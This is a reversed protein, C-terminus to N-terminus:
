ILMRSKAIDLLRDFTMIELDPFITSARRHQETSELDVDRGVVAILKPRYARLGYRDQLMKRHREDEFYAHYERLQAAVENIAAALSVRDRKGVFIRATPLKLDLIDCWDGSRPELLFDPRLSTGNARELVIQPHVTTYNLGQLFHPNAELFRQIAHEKLGTQSLLSEFNRIEEAFISQTRSALVAPRGVLLDDKLPHELGYSAYAHYPVVEISDGAVQITFDVLMSHQHLTRSFFEFQLKLLAQELADVWTIERLPNRGAAVNQVSSLLEKVASPGVDIGLSHDLLAKVYELQNPELQNRDFIAL